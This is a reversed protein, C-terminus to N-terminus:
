KPTNNNNNNNNNSNSNVKSQNIQQNQIMKKRNTM